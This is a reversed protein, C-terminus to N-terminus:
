QHNKTFFTDLKQLQSKAHSKQSDNGQALATEYVAKSFNYSARYELHNMVYDAIILHDDLNNEHKKFQNISHEQLTIIGLMETVSGKKSNNLLYESLAPMNDWIDRFAMQLDETDSIALHSETSFIEVFDEATKDKFAMELVQKDPGLNRFSRKLDAMVDYKQHTNAIIRTLYAETLNEPKALQILMNTLSLAAIPDGLKTSSRMCNLLNELDAPSITEIKNQQLTRLIVEGNNEFVTQRAEESDYLPLYPNEILQCENAFSLYPSFFLLASLALLKSHKKM